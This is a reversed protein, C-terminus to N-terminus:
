GLPQVMYHQHLYYDLINAPTIDNPSVDFPVNAQMYGLAVLESCIVGHKPNEDFYETWKPNNTVQKFAQWLINSYAYKEGVRSLAYNAISQRQAATLNPNHLCYGSKATSLTKALSLTRVQDLAQTVQITDYDFGSTTVLGVHSVIGSFQSILSSIVGKGRIAIVDGIGMIIPM